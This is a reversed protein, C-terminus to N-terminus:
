DLIYVNMTRSGIQMCQSYSPYYLDAIITGAMAAGGTDAAVAYGYVVRGDPSCIYLRTGYPIVNPNVAVRGFAAPLGTATTTGTCYASCRGTLLKRYSVTNGNQDILSGDACVAAYGSSYRKTGVSIVKSVPQKTVDTKIVTSQVVNGDCLKQRTVVTKLGNQGDTTVAQTGAYMSSDKQTVTDYAIPETSTVQKYTVRSVKLKMGETVATNPNVSPSDESGLTVGAQKLANSVTGEWVLSNITKGDATISVNYRRRVTVLLGEAAKTTLSPSVTDNSGLTVGAKGLADSVTDGYHVLVSQSEGDAAVTVHKATKVTIDVNGSSEDRREVLDNSGATVGALKLIDTTDTSTMEVTPKAQGDLTVSAWRTAAMVTVVSGITIIVMLALSVAQRVLQDKQEKEMFKLRHVVSKAFKAASGGTKQAAARFGGAKATKAAPGKATGGISKLIKSATSKIKLIAKKLGFHKFIQLSNVRKRSGAPQKEPKAEVQWFNM